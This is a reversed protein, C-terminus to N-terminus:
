PLRQTKIEPEEIEEIINSPLEEQSQYKTIRNCNNPYLAVDEDLFKSRNSDSTRMECLPRRPTM